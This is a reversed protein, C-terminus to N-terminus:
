QQEVPEAAGTAPGATSNTPSDPDPGQVPPPAATRRPEIRQPPQPVAPLAQGQVPASSAAASTRILDAGKLSVNSVKKGAEGIAPAQQSGVTIRLAEPKGTTLQPAVANAPVEYREGAALQGQKLIVGGDRVQLWVADTATLVVPGSAQQPAVAPAPAAANETAVAINDAEAVAEDPELSRNNLWTLALVVLALLILAGFVLGKPMTRAPDAAEYIEPHAYTPGVVGMESRLQDGIENRDLGVASAYNKAFGVTYTAAPLKTWDGTEISALHRTPIRTQAAVDEISLGKAERAERLRQGATVVESETEDM